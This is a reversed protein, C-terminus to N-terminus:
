SGGGNRNSRSYEKEPVSNQKVIDFRDRKTKGGTNRGNRQINIENERRNKNSIIKKLKKVNVKEKIYKEYSGHCDATKIWGLYSLMQSADCWTIKEKKHMKAAKRTARLMITKRLTTKDRYFRYGMFDLHRGKRIKDKTMFDFRFVQWNGKMELDLEEKLFRSIEKRLKHLSKKNRGFIIMDDMYRVYCKAGSKKIHHDLQQLYWNSFWQSTYYGLPIGYKEGGEEHDCYADIHKELLRILKEDRIKKRFLEKIKKHNVSQFFHYIDMKCCYKIEKQNKNIFREIYKKGYHGGRGPISGCSYEYMGRTIIPEITQVIAHHIIQEYKYKPKIIKRKKKSFGDNIEVIEHTPIKYEESELIKKIIGANESKNKLIKAVD